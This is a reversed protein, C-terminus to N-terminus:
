KIIIMPLEIRGQSGDITIDQVSEVKAKTVPELKQIVVRYNGLGLSASWKGVANTRSKHVKLGTALDTIEVNALFIPKSNANLCKQVVAIQVQDSKEKYESFILGDDERPDVKKTPLMPPVVAVAESVQTTRPMNPPMQVPMEPQAKTKAFTEARSTRRFGEPTNTQPISNEAIFPINREPDGPPLSNFGAPITPLTPAVVTEATFKKVVNKQADVKVALENLKNSL